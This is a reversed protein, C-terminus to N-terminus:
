QMLPSTRDCNAPCTMPTDGVSGGEDLQPDDDDKIPLLLDKGKDDVGVLVVRSVGEDDIAQYIRLGACRTEALLTQLFDKGFLEVFHPQRRRPPAQHPLKPDLLGRRQTQNESRRAPRLFARYSGYSTSYPQHFIPCFGAIARFVATFEVIPLRQQIFIASGYYKFILTAPM